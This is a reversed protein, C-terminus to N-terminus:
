KEKQIINFMEKMSPLISYRNLSISSKAFKQNVMDVYLTYNGDNGMYFSNWEEPSLLRQIQLQDLALNDFSAIKINKMIEEINMFLWFQNSKIKQDCQKHYNIGRRFDKYGLFLIKLNKVNLLLSDYLDKTFLGNIVHFVINKYIESKSNLIELLKKDDTLYSIGLGNILNNSYLTDILDIQNIFHKQNVTLNTIIKKDKLKTLFPILDPHSLPNGGGIAIETYPQLTDIFQQNMIDGHKGNISSNEHCMPCGADCYDTIKCDFSEPFDAIFKDTDKLEKSYRIKTGNDYILVSYNGNKYKGLLKVM